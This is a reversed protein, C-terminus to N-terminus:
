SLKLVERIPILDPDEKALKKYTKDLEIAQQVYSKALDIDGLQAAYCGLNFKILGEKPFLKEASLLIERAEEINKFRRVAYALQIAWSPNQPQLEKLQDALKVANQWENAEFHVALKLELIEPREQNDKSIKKLSKSAETFMGLELFGAAYQLNKQDSLTFGMDM